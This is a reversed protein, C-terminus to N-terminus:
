TIYTFFFLLTVTPAKQYIRAKPTPKTRCSLLLDPGPPPQYGMGAEFSLDTGFDYIIIFYICTVM